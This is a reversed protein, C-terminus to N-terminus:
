NKRPKFCPLLCFGDNGPAPAPGWTVKDGMGGVGEM